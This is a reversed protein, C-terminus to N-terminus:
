WIVPCAFCEAGALAETQIVSQSPAIPRVKIFMGYRIHSTFM